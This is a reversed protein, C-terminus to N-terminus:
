EDRWDEGILKQNSMLDPFVDDRSIFSDNTLEYFRCHGYKDAIDFYKNHNFTHVIKYDDGFQKNFCDKVYSKKHNPTLKYTELFEEFLWNCKDLACWSELSKWFGGDGHDEWYLIDEGNEVADLIERIRKIRDRLVETM